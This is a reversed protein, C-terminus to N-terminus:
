SRTLLTAVRSSLSSALVVQLPTLPDADHRPRLERCGVVSREDRAKACAAPRRNEQEVSPRPQAEVVEAIQGVLKCLLVVTAQYWCRPSAGDATPLATDRDRVVHAVCTAHEVREAPVLRVDDTMGPAPVESQVDRLSQRLAHEPHQRDVREPRHAVSAPRLEVFLHKAPRGLLQALPRALEVLQRRLASGVVFQRELRHAEDPGRVEGIRLLRRRHRLQSHRALARRLHHRDIRASSGASSAPNGRIRTGTPKTWPERLGIGIAAEVSAASRIGPAHTSTTSPAPWKTHTSLARRQERM